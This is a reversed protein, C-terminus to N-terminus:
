NQHQQMREAREALWEENFELGARDELIEKEVASNFTTYHESLMDMRGPWSGEEEIFLRRLEEDTYQKRDLRIVYAVSKDSNLLGVAEKGELGFAKKMFDEGVNKLEPVESLVPPNGTGARGVPYSRWSFFATPKIAEFGREAVFFQDFPAGSKTVEAALEQAKKEALKAAENRKWAQVVQERIEKFEPIRRPTDEIKMVLYWDGELEQALMPEYLELTQYAAQTVNMRQSAADVAKGVATDFLERITLPATKEYTLGSEDALWKLDTLKAPPEPAKKKADEAAAVQSGYRNYEAQLQASAEGMVRQLEEVAKETALTRRIEDRVKELPEFEVDDDAPLATAPDIAGGVSPTATAEEGTAPPSAEGSAAPTDSSAPEDAAPEEAPAEAATSEAPNGATQDDSPEDGAAADEEGEGSPQQLAVFQFPSRRTAQSSEAGETEGSTPDTAPPTSTEGAPAPDAAAGDAPAPEPDEAPAVAPPQPDAPPTTETDSPEVTAPETTAETAAAPTDSADGAPTGFSELGSLGLKTFESRKNREYYEKIEEETVTELLKETRGSISGLLYQLRVRRPEAFGPEAMPLERGVEMQYRGPDFDKYENYFALLQTENPEPVEGIFKEVPLVAAEISIRENVKRWDDWRQQPLVVLSADGYTRRYFYQLLMKRLTNFVIAENAQRNQQGVNSLIQAVQEGTVKKLGMEQIYHNILTDSVTMGAQEALDAMVELGIVETELQELQQQNLLLPPVSTPFDYGTEGGGQVFVAKLFDDTIKRQMLLSQLQAVNLEGVVFIFIALVAAVALFVKTHKRFYRFPSAM